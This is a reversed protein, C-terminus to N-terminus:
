LYLIYKLNGTNFIKVFRSSHDGKVSAGLDQPMSPLRHQFYRRNTCVDLWLSAPPMLSHFTFGAAEYGKGMSWDRDAYSMIDNTKVSSAFHKILKTLGGTVTFGSKTAFRILEASRYEEAHQRMLRTGSFTAVAVLEDHYQLGLKYRAMAPGQIHFASLFADAQQKDLSIVKTKRGHIRTNRGTLSQIRNLVQIQRSRWVDEWLSVFQIGLDFHHEQAAIVEDAELQNRISICNLVVDHGALRILVMRDDPVLEAAIGSEALVQLLDQYWGEEVGV